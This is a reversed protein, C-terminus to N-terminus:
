GARAVKRAIHERVADPRCLTDLLYLYPLFVIDAPLEGSHNVLLSADIENKRREGAKPGFGHTSNRYVKLLMASAREATRQEWSGDPLRFRVEDDGRQQQIFFGDQVRRLAEVARDAAPMLISAAAPPMLQRVRDATDKAVRLTCLRDFSVGMIRDAYADLLSNMLARQTTNDRGALQLSTTLGFIQGFTLMWHHHQHPAYTGDTDRFTTPDSLYGFMQNLRFAWWHIAQRGSYQSLQVAPILENRARVPILQMPEMPSQRFGNIDLGLSFLIAYPPVCAPLCWFRPSLAGLLPGLYHVLGIVEQYWDTSSGFMRGPVSEHQQATLNELADPDQDFRFMIGPLRVRRILLDTAFVLHASRNPFAPEGTAKMPMNGIGNYGDKVAEILDTRNGHAKVINSQILHFLASPDAAKMRDALQDMLENFRQIIEPDETDIDASFPANHLREFHYRLGSEDALDSSKVLDAEDAPRVSWRGNGLDRGRLGLHGILGRPDGGFLGAPLRLTAERFPNMIAM